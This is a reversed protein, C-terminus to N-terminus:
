VDIEVPTIPFPLRDPGRLVALEGEVGIVDGTLLRHLDDVTTIPKDNYSVIVDGERLGTLRAPGHEEVGVVLV